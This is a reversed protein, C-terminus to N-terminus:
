DEDVVRKPKYLKLCEPCLYHNNRFTLNEEKFGCNYCRTKQYTKNSVPETEIESESESSLEFTSESESESEEDGIFDKLDEHVYRSDHIWCYKANDKVALKCNKKSCLIVEYTDM